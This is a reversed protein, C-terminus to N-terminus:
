ENNKPIEIASAQSAKTKSMITSSADILGQSALYTIIVISINDIMDQPLGTYSTVIMSLLGVLAVWFKKSKWLSKESSDNIKTTDM